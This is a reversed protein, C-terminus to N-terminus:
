NDADGATPPGPCLIGYVKESLVELTFPKQLFHFGADILGHRAIVNGDYGSMYLVRLGPLETLLREYLERGNMGPMIVDTLLLDVRGVGKRVMELCRDGCDAAIVTYGMKELM